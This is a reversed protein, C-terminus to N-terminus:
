PVPGRPGVPAGSDDPGEGRAPVVIEVVDGPDLPDADPAPAPLEDQIELIERANAASPHFLEDAIGTFGGTLTGSARRRGRNLWGAAAILLAVLVIAGVTIIENGDM